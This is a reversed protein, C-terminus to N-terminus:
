VCHHFYLKWDQFWHFALQWFGLPHAPTCPLPSIQVYGTQVVSLPLFISMLMEARPTQGSKSFAFSCCSLSCTKTLKQEVTLHWWCSNCCCKSPLVPWTLPCWLTTLEGTTEAASFICARGERCCYKKLKTGKGEGMGILCCCPLWAKLIYCTLGHKKAKLDPLFKKTQALHGLGWLFAMSGSYLTPGSILFSIINLSVSVQKQCSAGSFPWFCVDKKKATASVFGIAIKEKRRGGKCTLFLVEVLTFQQDEAFLQNYLLFFNSM